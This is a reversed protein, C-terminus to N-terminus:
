FCVSKFDPYFSWWVATSLLIMGCKIAFGNSLLLLPMSLITLTFLSLFHDFPSIEISFGTEIAMSNSFSNELCHQQLAPKKLNYFFVRYIFPFLFLFRDFCTPWYNWAIQVNFDINLPQKAFIYHNFTCILIQTRNSPESKHNAPPAWTCCHKSFETVIKGICSVFHM